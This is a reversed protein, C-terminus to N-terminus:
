IGSQGTIETATNLRVIFKQFFNSAGNAADTFRDYAIDVAEMEEGIDGINM